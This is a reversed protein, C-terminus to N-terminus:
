SFGILNKKEVRLIEDFPLVRVEEESMDALAHDTESHLRFKIKSHSKYACQGCYFVFVKTHFSAVHDDLEEETEYTAVCMECNHLLKDYGHFVQLVM